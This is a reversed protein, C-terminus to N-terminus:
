TGRPQQFLFSKAAVPDSTRAADFVRVYIEQRLDKVEDRQPWVRLLYRMLSPEHALVERAFWQELPETM